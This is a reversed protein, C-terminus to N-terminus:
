VIKQLRWMKDQLKFLDAHMYMYTSVIFILYNSQTHNIANVKFNYYIIIGALHWHWIYMEFLQVVSNFLDLCCFPIPIKPSKNNDNDNDNDNDDHDDVVFM